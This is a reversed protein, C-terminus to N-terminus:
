IDVFNGQTQSLKKRKATILNQLSREAGGTGGFRGIIHIVKM